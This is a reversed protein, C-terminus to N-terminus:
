GGVLQPDLGLPLNNRIDLRLHRLTEAIVQKICILIGM